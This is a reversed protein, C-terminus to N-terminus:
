AYLILLYYKLICVYLRVYIKDHAFSYSFQLFNWQLKTAFLILSKLKFKHVCVCVCLVLNRDACTFNYVGYIYTCLFMYLYTYIYTLERVDTHRKSMRVTFNCHNVREWKM